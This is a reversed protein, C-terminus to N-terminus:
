TYYIELYGKADTSEPLPGLPNGFSLSSPCLHASVKYNAIIVSIKIIQFHNQLLVSFLNVSILLDAGARPDNDHRGVVVVARDANGEGGGSLIVLPNGVDDLMGDEAARLFVGELIGKQM